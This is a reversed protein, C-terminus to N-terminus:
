RKILKFIEKTLEDHKKKIVEEGPKDDIDMIMKKKKALEKAITEESLYTEKAKSFSKSYIKEYQTLEELSKIDEIDEDALGYKRKFEEKKNLLFLETQAKVNKMMEEVQPDLPKKPEEKKEEPAPPQPKFGELKKDVADMIKQLFEDANFKEEKKEPEKNTPEKHEPEKNELEPDANLWYKIGQEKM